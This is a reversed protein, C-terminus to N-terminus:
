HCYERVFYNPNLNEGTAKKLKKNWHYLAGPKFYAAKLYEGVKHTFFNESINQKIYDDLQSATMEGLLYNQYYVPTLTFHIKAAWDAKDRNDPPNVLQIDKVLKWWLRNLDQDTNEYLEREFFVFTIIFRASILQHLQTHRKFSGESDRFKRSDVKLFTGLWDPDMGKKEFLMAIAETTLVHASQRLIYPLEQDLYKFYAAHGFEHLATNMWYSSQQTNSLVRTDGERDIDICFATPNKGERPYLDSKQFLDNIQLGLSEFTADTLEMINKDKFYPDLNTEELAPATQFFPDAYHWPRLEEISIGFRKALETDLEAKLERYEQDSNKLVDQFISFVEDRNLEQLEFAMQHHNEYGLQQAIENRKKVIQILKGVVEEGVEKSAEWAKQREENDRSNTLIERIDNASLKRGDVEPMYKNFVINLESSMASIENLKETSVQNEKLLNFFLELQRRISPELGNLQLCEQVKEFLDSNSCYANWNSEAETLKEKWEDTGLTHAMWTAVNMRNVYEKVRTNQENLFQTVDM